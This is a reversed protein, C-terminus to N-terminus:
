IGWLNPFLRRTSDDIWNIVTVDITGLFLGFVSILRVIMM